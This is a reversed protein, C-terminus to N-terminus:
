RLGKGGSLKVRESAVEIRGHKVTLGGASRGRKSTRQRKVTGVPRHRPWYRRRADFTEGTATSLIFPAFLAVLRSALNMCDRKM